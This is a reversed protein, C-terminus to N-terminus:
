DQLKKDVLFELTETDLDVDERAVVEPDPENVVMFTNVLFLSAWAVVAVIVTIVIVSIINLTRETLNM